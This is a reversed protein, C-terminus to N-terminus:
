SISKWLVPRLGRAVPFRRRRGPAPKDQHVVPAVVGRFLCSRPM